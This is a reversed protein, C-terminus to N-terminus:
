SGEEEQALINAYYTGYAPGGQYVSAHDHITIGQLIAYFSMTTLGDSTYQIVQKGSQNHKYIVGMNGSAEEFEGIAEDLIRFGNLYYKPDYSDADSYDIPPYGLPRVLEVTDGVGVAFSVTNESDINIDSLAM